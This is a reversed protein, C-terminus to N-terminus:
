PVVRAKGCAGLHAIYQLHCPPSINKRRKNKHVSWRLSVLEFMTSLKAKRM